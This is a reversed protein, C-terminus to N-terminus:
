VITFRLSAYLMDQSVWRVYIAFAVRVLEDKDQRLHTSEGHHLRESCAKTTQPWGECMRGELPAQAVHLSHFLHLKFLWSQHFNSISVLNSGEKIRLNFYVLTRM